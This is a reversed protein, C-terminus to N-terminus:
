KARLESRLTMFFGYLLKEHKHKSAMMECRVIWRKNIWEPTKFKEEKVYKAMYERSIKADEHILPKSFKKKISEFNSNESFLPKRHNKYYSITKPTCALCFMQRTTGDFHEKCKNCQRLM